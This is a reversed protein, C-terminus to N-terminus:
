APTFPPSKLLTANEVIAFSEGFLFVKRLRKFIARRAFVGPVVEGTKWREVTARAASFERALEDVSLHELVATITTAFAAPDEARMPQLHTFLAQLDNPSDM